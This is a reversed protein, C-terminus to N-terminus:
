DENKAVIPWEKFQSHKTEFKDFGAEVAEEVRKKISAALIIVVVPSIMLGIFFALLYKM